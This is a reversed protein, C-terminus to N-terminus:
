FSPTKPLTTHSNWRYNDNLPLQTRGQPSLRLDMILLFLRMGQFIEHSLPCTRNMKGLIRLQLVFSLTLTSFIRELHVFSKCFDFTNTKWSNLENFRLKINYHSKWWPIHRGNSVQRFNWSIDLEDKGQTSRDYRKKSLLVREYIFIKGYVPFFTTLKM